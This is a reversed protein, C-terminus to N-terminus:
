YCYITNLSYHNCKCTCSDVTNFNACKCFILTLGFLCLSIQLLRNYLIKCVTAFYPLCTFASLGSRLGQPSMLVNATM